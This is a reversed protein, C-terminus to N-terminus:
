KCEESGVTDVITYSGVTPQMTKTNNGNYYQYELNASSEASFVKVQFETRFEDDVFRHLLATKGVQSDGVLVITVGSSNNVSNNTKQYKKSPFKVHYSTFFLFEYPHATFFLNGVNIGGSSNNHNNGNNKKKNNKKSASMAAEASHIALALHKYMTEQM